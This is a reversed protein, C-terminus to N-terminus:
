IKVHQKLCSLRASLLGPDGKFASLHVPKLKKRLLLLSLHRLTKNSGDLPEIRGLAIAKNSAITTLIYENM